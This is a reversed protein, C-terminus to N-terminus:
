PSALEAAVSVGASVGEGSSDGYEDRLEGTVRVRVSDSSDVVDSSSPVGARVPRPPIRLAKKEPRVRLSLTPGDGTGVNVICVSWDPRLRAKDSLDSEDRVPSLATVGSSRGSLQLGLRACTACVTATRAECSTRPSTRRSFQVLSVRMVPRPWSSDAM